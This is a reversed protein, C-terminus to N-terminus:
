RDGATTAAVNVAARPSRTGSDRLDNGARDHTSEVMSLTGWTVLVRDALFVIQSAPPLLATFPALPTNHDIHM